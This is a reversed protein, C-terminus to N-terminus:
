YDELQYIVPITYIIPRKQGRHEGPIWRPMSRVIRLAEKDCGYGLGKVVKINSLSGNEEVIFQVFVRGEVGHDRAAQPYRIKDNLYNLMAADGGPFSPKIDSVKLPGAAVEVVEEAEDTPTTSVAPPTTPQRVEADAVSTDASPVSPSGANSTTGSTSTPEPQEVVSPVSSIPSNETRNSSNSAPTEQVPNSLSSPTNDAVNAAPTQRETENAIYVEYSKQVVQQGDKTATLRVTYNGARPYTHRYYQQITGRKGNGFDVAYSLLPDYNKVFFLLRKGATKDGRIDIDLNEYSRAAAFDGTNETAPTLAQDEQPLPISAEVDSLSDVNAPIDEQSISAEAIEQNPNAQKNKMLNWYDDISAITDTGNVNRIIIRKNPTELHKNVLALNLDQLDFSEYSYKQSQANFPLFQLIVYGVTFLLLVVALLKGAQKLRKKRLHKRYVSIQSQLHDQQKKKFAM